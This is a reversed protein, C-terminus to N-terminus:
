KEILENAELLEQADEKLYIPISVIIDKVGIYQALVTRHRGDSIIFSKNQSIDWMPPDVCEKNLWREITNAFRSEDHWFGDFKKNFVVDYLNTSNKILKDVNCQMFIRNSYMPHNIPLEMKRVDIAWVPVISNLEDDSMKRCKNRLLIDEEDLDEDDTKKWDEM